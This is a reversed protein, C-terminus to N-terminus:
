STTCSLGSGLLLAASFSFQYNFHYKTWQRTKVYLCPNSCVGVQQLNCHWLNWNDLCAPLQAHRWGAHKAGYADQFQHGFDQMEPILGWRALQNAVEVCASGELDSQLLIVNM